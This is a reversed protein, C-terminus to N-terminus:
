KKTNAVPISNNISNIIEQIREILIEPSNIENKYAANELKKVLEITKPDFKSSYYFLDKIFMIMLYIDLTKIIPKIMNNFISNEENPLNNYIKQYNQDLKKKFNENNFIKKTDHAEVMCKFWFYLPKPYKNQYKYNLRTYMYNFISDREIDYTNMNKKIDPLYGKETYILGLFKDGYFAPKIQETVDIIAKNLIKVTNEKITKESNFFGFIGGELEKKLKLYKYKYKKAKHEYIDNM